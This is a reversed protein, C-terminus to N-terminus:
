LHAEPVQTQLWRELDEKVECIARSKMVGLGIHDNDPPLARLRLWPCNITRGTSHEFDSHVEVRVHIILSRTQDTIQQPKFTYRQAETSQWFERLVGICAVLMQAKRVGFRFHEDSMVVQGGDKLVEVVPYGNFFGQKLSFRPNGLTGRETEQCHSCYAKLMSPYISCKEQSSLIVM